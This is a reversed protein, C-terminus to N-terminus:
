PGKEAPGPQQFSKALENQMLAVNRAQRMGLLTPNFAVIDYTAVKVTRPGAGLAGSADLEEVVRDLRYIQYGEEDLANLVIELGEKAVNPVFKWVKKQEDM